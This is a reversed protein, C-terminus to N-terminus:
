EGYEWKYGYASKVKNKCCACINTAAQYLGEYGPIDKWIEEM